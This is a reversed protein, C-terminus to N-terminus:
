INCKVDDIYEVSKKPVRIWGYGVDYLYKYKDDDYNIEIEQNNIIGTITRNEDEPIINTYVNKNCGDNIIKVPNNLRKREKLRPSLTQKESSIKIPKRIEKTEDTFIVDFVKYVGFDIYKENENDEDFYKQVVNEMNKIKEDDSLILEYENEGIQEFLENKIIKGINEMFTTLYNFGLEKIFSTDTELNKVYEIYYKNIALIKFYNDYYKFNFILYDITREM